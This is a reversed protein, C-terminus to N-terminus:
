RAEDFRRARIAGGRGRLRQWLDYVPNIRGGEGGLLAQFPTADRAAGLETLAAQNTRMARTIARHWATTSRGGGADSPVPELRLLLEPRREVWMTYEIAVSIIRVDLEASAAAVMSVGPRVQIKRRPDVFEGQPTIWLTTRPHDRFLRTAHDVMVPASRPDHPDIGFLGLKRMFGFRRFQEADVPGTPRRAPMFRSHLFLLVLPDWWSAHNAAAIVPGPHEALSALLGANERAIRVAFFDKRMMKRVWWAFTRTFRPDYCGPFLIPPEPTPVTHPM